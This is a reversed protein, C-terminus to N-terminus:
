RVKEPLRQGKHFVAWEYLGTKSAADRAEEETDHASVTAWPNRGRGIFARRKLLYKSM